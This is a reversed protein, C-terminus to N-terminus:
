PRLCINPFTHNEFVRSMELDINNVRGVAHEVVVNPDLVDQTTAEGVVLTPRAYSFVSEPADRADPMRAQRIEHASESKETRMEASSPPQAMCVLEPPIAGKTDTYVDRPYLKEVRVEVHKRLSELASSQQM